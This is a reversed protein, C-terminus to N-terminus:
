SVVAKRLKRFPFSLPEKPTKRLSTKGFLSLPLFPKGTAGPSHFGLRWAEHESAAGRRVPELFLLGM